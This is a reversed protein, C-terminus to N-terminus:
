VIEIIDSTVVLVTLNFAKGVKGIPTELSMKINYKHQLELAFRVFQDQGLILYEPKKFFDEKHCRIMSLIEEIM